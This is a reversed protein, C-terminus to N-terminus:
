VDEAALVTFSHLGSGRCGWMSTDPKSINRWGAPESQILFSPSSMPTLSGKDGEKASGAERKASDWQMLMWAVVSTKNLLSSNQTDPAARSFSSFDWWTSFPFNQLGAAHRRCDSILRPNALIQQRQLEEGEDSHTAQHLSSLPVLQWSM